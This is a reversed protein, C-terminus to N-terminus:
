AAKATIQHSTSLAVDYTKVEPDAACLNRITETVKPFQERQYREADQRSNWFSIALVRNPDSQSTLVIEDKFGQLKRLTPLVKDEVTQCLEKAKGPKSTCDVVRTFM